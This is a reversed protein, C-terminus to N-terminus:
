REYNWKDAKFEKVDNGNALRILMKQGAIEMIQYKVGNKVIIKDKM